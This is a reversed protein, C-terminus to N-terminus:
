FCEKKSTKFLGSIREQTEAWFTPHNKSVTVVILGLVAAAALAEGLKVRRIRTIM